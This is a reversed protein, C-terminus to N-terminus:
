EKPHQTTHPDTAVLHNVAMLLMKVRKHSPQQQSFARLSVQFGKLVAHMHDRTVPHQADLNMVAEELYKMKLETFKTLDHSLQNVLSLLVDQTLPCPSMNFVQQPNVRECVFMVLSLDSASLAAKFASNFAGTTIQQQIQQQLVKPNHPHAGPAHGHPTHARSSATANALARADVQAQHETLARVVEEKVAKSVRESLSDSSLHQQQAQSLKSLQEHLQTTNASLHQQAAALQQGAKAVGDQVSARCAQAVSGEVHALYERTGQQFADNLQTFLQQSFATMGPLFVKSYADRCSGAVAGGVAVGVSGGVSDLFGRSHVVKSLGDTVQTQANKVLANVDSTVLARVPELGKTVAPLVLNRMEGRLCKELAPRLTNGVLQPVDLSLQTQAARVEEVQKTLSNM